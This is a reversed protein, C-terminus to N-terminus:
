EPADERMAEDLEISEFPATPVGLSTTDDDSIHVAKFATILRVVTNNFVKVTQTRQARDETSGSYDARYGVLKLSPVARVCSANQASQEGTAETAGTAPSSLPRKQEKAELMRVGERKAQRGKKRPPPTDMTITPKYNALPFKYENFEANGYKEILHTHTNMLKWVKSGEMGIFIYGPKHRFAM